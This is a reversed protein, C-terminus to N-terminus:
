NGMLITKLENITLGTVTSLEKLTTDPNLDYYDRIEENTM